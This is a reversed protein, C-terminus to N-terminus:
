RSKNRDLVELRRRCDEWEEVTGNRLIRNIDDSLRPNLLRAQEHSIFGTAAAQRHDYSGPYTLNRRAIEPPFDEVGIRQWLEDSYMFFVYPPIPRGWKDYDACSRLTASLFWKGGVRGVAQPSLGVGEWISSLAGASIPVRITNGKVPPGHRVDSLEQDLVNGLIVTRAVVARSGDFMVVEENWAPGSACGAQPLGFLVAALVTGFKRALARFAWYRTQGARLLEIRMVGSGNHM